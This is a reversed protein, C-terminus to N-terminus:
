GQGFAVALRRMVLHTGTQVHQIYLPVGVLSADSAASLVVRDGAVPVDASTPIQVQPWSVEVDQGGAAVSQGQLAVRARMPGSWYPTWTDVREGTTADMTSGTRRELAGADVM